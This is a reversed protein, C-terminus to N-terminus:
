RRAKEATNSPRMRSPMAAPSNGDCFGAAEAAQRMPATLSPRIPGSAGSAPLRGSVRASTSAMVAKQRCATEARGKPTESRKSSSGAHSSGVRRPLIQELAQEGLEVAPGAGVPLGLRHREIGADVVIGFSERGLALPQEAAQRKADTMGVLEGLRARQEGELQAAHGDQQRAPAVARQAGEEIYTAMAARSKHALLARHAALRANGAGIM